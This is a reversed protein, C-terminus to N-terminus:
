GQSTRGVSRRIIATRKMGVPCRAVWTAIGGAAQPLRTMAPSQTLSAPTSSRESSVPIVEATADRQWPSLPPNLAQQGAAHVARPGHRHGGAPAPADRLVAVRSSGGRVRGVPGCAPSEAVSSSPASRPGPADPGGKGIHCKRPTGPVNASDFTASVMCRGTSNRSANGDSADRAFSAARRDRRQQISCVM